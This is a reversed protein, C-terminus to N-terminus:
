PPRGRRQERERGREPRGESQRQRQRRRQEREIERNQKRKTAAIPTPPHVGVGRRVVVVAAVVVVGNGRWGGGEALVSGVCEGRWGGTLVSAVGVSLPLGELDGAGGPCRFGEALVGGGAGVGYCVRWGLQCCCDGALHGGGWECLSIVSGVCEVRWGAGEALVNGVCGIPVGRGVCEGRWGGPFPFTVALVSAVGVSLPLGRGVQVVFGGVCGWVFGGEMQFFFSVGCSMGGCWGAGAVLV